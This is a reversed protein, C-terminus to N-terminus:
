FEACTGALDVVCVTGRNDWLAPHDMFAIQDGKPSFRINSIWGTSQYLVNGIPYELRSHGDAYHVVALKGHAIGTQGAFM